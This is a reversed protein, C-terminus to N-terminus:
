IKDQELQAIILGADKPSLQSFLVRYGDDGKTEETNQVVLFSILGIVTLLTAIVVYLQKKNLKKSLAVLQEVLAKLDM